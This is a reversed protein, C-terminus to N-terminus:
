LLYFYWRYIENELVVIMKMLFFFLVVIMYDVLMVSWTMSSARTVGAGFESGTRLEALESEIGKVKKSRGHSINWGTSRTM